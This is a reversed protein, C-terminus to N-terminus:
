AKLQSTTLLDDIVEMAIEPFKHTQDICNQITVIAKKIKGPLIESPANEGPWSADRTVKDPWRSYALWMGEQTKHLCSGLAGRYQVFYSAVQRWADQYQAEYGPKIFARYIVAFM